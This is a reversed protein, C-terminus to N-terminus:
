FKPTTINRAGRICAMILVDIKREQSGSGVGNERGSAINIKWIFM